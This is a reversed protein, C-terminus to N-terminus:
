IKAFSGRPALLQAVAGGVESLFEDLHSPKIIFCQAGLRMAQERDQPAVSSTMVATPVGLLAPNKASAALIDRADGRPVNFDLLILDPIDPGGSGFRELAKIADSATDYHILQCDLSRLRLAERLLRVDGPNDEVVFIRHPQRTM